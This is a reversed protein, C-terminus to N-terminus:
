SLLLRIPVSGRLVGYTAGVDMGEFGRELADCVVENIEHGTRHITGM